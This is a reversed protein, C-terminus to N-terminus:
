FLKLFSLNRPMFKYPSVIIESLTIVPFDPHIIWAKSQPLDKLVRVTKYRRVLLHIFPFSDKILRTTERRENVRREMFIACRSKRCGILFQVCKALTNLNEYFIFM